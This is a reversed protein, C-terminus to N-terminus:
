PAPLSWRWAGGPGFGERRAEVGLRRRARVLQDPSIGIGIAEARVVAALEGLAGAGELRERLFAMAPTEPRPAPRRLPTIRVDAVGARQLAARIAAARRRARWGTVTCSIEFGQEHPSAM